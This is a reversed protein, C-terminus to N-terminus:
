PISLIQEAISHSGGCSGRISFALEIIRHRVVPPTGKIIDTLMDLAESFAMSPSM